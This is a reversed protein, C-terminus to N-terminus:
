NSQHDAYLTQSQSTCFCLYKGHPEGCIPNHIQITISHTHFKQKNIIFQSEHASLFLGSHTCM